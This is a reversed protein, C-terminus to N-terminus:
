INSSCVESLSGDGCIVQGMPSSAIVGGHWLCCGILLRDYSSIAAQETCICASYGGDSCVYHGSSLDCYSIGHPACCRASEEVESLAWGESSFFITSFLALLCYKQSNKLIQKLLNNQM